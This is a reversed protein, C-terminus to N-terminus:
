GKLQGSSSSQIFSLISYYSIRAGEFTRVKTNPMLLSEERALAQLQVLKLQQGASDPFATEFETWLELNSQPKGRRGGRQSTALSRKEKEPRKGVFAESSTSIPSTSIFIVLHLHCSEITPNLLFLNKFKPPSNSLSLQQHGSTAMWPAPWWCAKILDCCGPCYSAQLPRVVASAKCLTPSVKSPLSLAAWSARRVSLM